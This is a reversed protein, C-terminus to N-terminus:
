YFLTCPTHIFQLQLIRFLLCTCLRICYASIISSRWNVNPQYKKSAGVQLVLFLCARYQVTGMVIGDSLFNYM